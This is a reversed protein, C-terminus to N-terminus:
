QVDVVASEKLELLGVGMSNMLVQDMNDMLKTFDGREMRNYKISKAIYVTYVDSYVETWMNDKWHNQIFKLAERPNHFTICDGWGAEIELWYRLQTEDQPQFPHDEPWNDFARKIAHFM